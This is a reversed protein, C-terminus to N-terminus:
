EGLRTKNARDVMGAIHGSKVLACLLRLNSEHGLKRVGAGKLNDNMASLLDEIATQADPSMEKVAAVMEKSDITKAKM